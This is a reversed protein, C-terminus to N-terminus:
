KLDGLEAQIIALVAVGATETRLIRPGLRVRQYGYRNAMEIEPASLGGEPGILFEMEDYPVLSAKLSQGATPDLVYATISRNRAALYENLTQAPELAPLVCRGSQECASIIIGQWHQLKKEQRKEDMPKISRGTYVPVISKVGLEVAKQIAWDMHDGRSVGQILRIRVPSESLSEQADTISATASKGETTLRALYNWGDGNFLAVQDGNRMRLVNLLYHTVRQNLPVVAGVSLQTAQYVRTIAMTSGHLGQRFCDIGFLNRPFLNQFFQTIHPLFARYNTYHSEM